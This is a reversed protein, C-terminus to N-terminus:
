RIWELRFSIQLGDLPREDLDITKNMSLVSKTTGVCGSCVLVIPLLLFFRKM